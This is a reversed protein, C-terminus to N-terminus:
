GDLNIVQLSLTRRKNTRTATKWSEFIGDRDM